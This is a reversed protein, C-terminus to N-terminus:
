MKPGRITVRFPLMLLRNCVKEYKDREKAKAFKEDTLKEVLLSLETIKLQENHNQSALVELHELCHIVQPMLGGICDPGYIDILEEFERGIKTALEYVDVVNFESRKLEM